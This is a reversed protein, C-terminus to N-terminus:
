DNSVIRVGLTRKRRGRLVVMWRELVVLMGMGGFLHEGGEDVAAEIVADVVEGGFREDRAFLAAHAAAHLFEHGAALPYSLPKRLLLRLHHILRRTPSLSLRRM